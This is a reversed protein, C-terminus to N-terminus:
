VIDCDYDCPLVFTVKFKCLVNFWENLFVKTCFRNELKERFSYV